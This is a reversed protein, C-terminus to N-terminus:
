QFTPQDGNSPAPSARRCSASSASSILCCKVFRWLSEACLPAFFFFCSQMTSSDAAAGFVLVRSFGGPSYPGVGGHRSEPYAIVNKFDRGFKGSFTKSGRSRKEVSVWLSLDIKELDFKGHSM